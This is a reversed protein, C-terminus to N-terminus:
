DEVVREGEHVGVPVAEESHAAPALRDAREEASGEPHLGPLEGYQLVQELHRRDRQARTGV